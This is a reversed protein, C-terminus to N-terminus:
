WVCNCKGPKNEGALRWVSSEKLCHSIPLDPRVERVTKAILRYVRAHLERAYCNRGEELRGGQVMGRSIANDTGMRGELVRLAHPSSHIGGLTLRQLPVRDLLDRVFSAYADEWDDCPVIPMIMARVPYGVRACAAMAQVREEISPADRELAESVEPPNLSWSLITNGGHDVELLREVSASKTLVIQRAYKHKAFFPVLIESYATLPDLALGDQLKGLHFAVPKAARRARLDIAHVIEPLNVFIRVTPSFWFTRTGSLYCYSCGYPCFGYVSFMWYKPCRGTENCTRVASQHQGFVLTRKGRRLRELPDALDLDIKNHPTELQEEVPVRPFAACVRGVFAEREVTDLSGKALIIREVNFHKVTKPEYDTPLSVGMDANLGSHAAKM